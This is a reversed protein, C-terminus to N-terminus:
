QEREDVFELPTTPTLKEKIEEIEKKYDELMQPIIQIHEEVNSMTAQV